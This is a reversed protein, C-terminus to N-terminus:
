PSFDIGSPGNIGIDYGPIISVVKTGGKNKLIMFGTMSFRCFKDKAQTATRVSRLVDTGWHVVDLCVPDQINVPRNINHLVLVKLRYDIFWSKHVTRLM